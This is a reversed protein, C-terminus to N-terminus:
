PLKPSVEVIDLSSVALCLLFCEVEPLLSIRELDLLIFQQDLVGLINFLLPIM